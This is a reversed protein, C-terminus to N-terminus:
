ENGAELAARIQDAVKVQKSYRVAGGDKASSSPVMGCNVAAWLAERLRQNEAFLVAARHTPILNTQMLRKNEAELEKISDKFGDRECEGFCRSM